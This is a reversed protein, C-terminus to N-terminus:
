IFEVYGCFNFRFGDCYDIHEHSYATLIDSLKIKLAVAEPTYREVGSALAGPTSLFKPNIVDFLVRQIGVTIASASRTSRKTTVSVRVGAPLEGNKVAARIDTRVAAAIQTPSLNEDYKPGTFM